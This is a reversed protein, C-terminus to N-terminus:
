ELHRYYYMQEQRGFKDPHFILILDKLVRDPCVVSSEWFDNGGSANLRLNNNYVTKNRVAKARSFNANFDVLEKLSCANGVNLWYDAQEIYTYAQEMGIQMSEGADGGKYIYNGGADKILNAMYSKQSPMSWVDSWPVNLMVTPRDTVKGLQKRCTEYRSVIDAFVQQGRKQLGTVEALVMLWEARGLPSTELYEAVYMYPIGLENLKDTVTTQADNVGYLLVLDPNLRLLVEFDMEAGVDRIQDKHTVIYSNSIYNLGSVGVVRDVAGLADLLAVHTSSTCVIRHADAPLIVGSFSASPKEDNRAVFYSMQVNRANQWPNFVEIQTSKMSGEKQVIRFGSAYSPTYVAHVVPTDAPLSTRPRCGVCLAMLMAVLLSIQKM